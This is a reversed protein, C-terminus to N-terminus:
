MSSAIVPTFCANSWPSRAPNPCNEPPTTPLRRSTTMRYQSSGLRNRALVLGAAPLALNERLLLADLKVSNHSAHREAEEMFSMQRSIEAKVHGPLHQVMDGIRAILRLDGSHAWEALQRLTSLLEVAVKGNRIESGLEERIHAAEGAVKTSLQEVKEEISAFLGPEGAKEARESLSRLIQLLETVTKGDSLERRLEQHAINLAGFNSESKQGVQEIAARHEDFARHLGGLSIEQGQLVSGVQELLNKLEQISGVTERQSEMQGGVIRIQNHIRELLAGQAELTSRQSQQLAKQEVLESRIPAVHALEARLASIQQEQDSSRRLLAEVAQRM